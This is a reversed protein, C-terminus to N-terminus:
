LVKVHEDICSTEGKRILTDATSLIKSKEDWILDKLILTSPVSLAAGKVLSMKQNKVLYSVRENLVTNDKSLQNNQEILKANQSILVENQKYLGKLRQFMRQMTSVKRQEPSGLPAETIMQRIPLKYLNKPCPLVETLNGSRSM